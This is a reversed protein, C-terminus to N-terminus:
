TGNAHEHFYTYSFLRYIGYGAFIFFIAANFAITSGAISAAGLYLFTMPNTFLAFYILQRHLLAAISILVFLLLISVIIPQGLYFLARQYTVGSFYGVPMVFTFLWWLNCCLYILEIDLTTKYPNLLKVM